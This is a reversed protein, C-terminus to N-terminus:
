KIELECYFLFKYLDLLFLNPYFFILIKKIIRLFLKSFLQISWLLDNKKLFHHMRLLPTEKQAILDNKVLNYLNKLAANTKAIFVANSDIGHHSIPNEIHIVPINKAKLTLFFLLDEYGYDVLLECFTIESFISQHV